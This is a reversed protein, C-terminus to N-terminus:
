CSDSSGNLRAARSAQAQRLNTLTLPAEINDYMARLVALIRPNRSSIAKAISSRQESRTAVDPGNLCMDSVAIAFDEGYDRAIVSIMMETAAVGGGCTLLDGDKEVRQPTPALDPFAEVFGPQNEWHLTFTRGTLFGTRALTAAGTCIGGLQRWIPCPPTHQGICRRVCSFHISAAAFVRVM